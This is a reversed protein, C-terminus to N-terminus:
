TKILHASYNFGAGFSVLIIHKDTGIEHKFSHYAVPVSANGINGYEAITNCMKIHKPSGLKEYLADSIRQNAQHPIIYDIEGLNLNSKELVQEIMNNMQKIANIFVDKGLMSVYHEKNMLREQTLPIESGGAKIYLKDIGSSDSGLASAIIGKHEEFNEGVLFAGAGDGFLPSTQPDDDNIIASMKEVGVIIGNKYLGSRILANATALLHLFGSCAAMVDFCFLNHNLNLKNCIKNATAPLLSDPTSTACLLFDIPLNNRELIPRVAKVALDSTAEDPSAKHRLKIGTRREIWDHDLNFRTEFVDNAVEKAPIYCHSDLISTNM